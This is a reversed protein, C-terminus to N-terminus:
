GLTGALGRLVLGGGLSGLNKHHPPKRIWDKKSVIGLFHASSRTVTKRGEGGLLLCVELYARGVEKEEELGGIWGGVWGVWEM